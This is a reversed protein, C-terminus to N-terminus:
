MNWSYNEFDKSLKVRVIRGLKETYYTEIVCLLHLLADFLDTRNVIYKKKENESARKM